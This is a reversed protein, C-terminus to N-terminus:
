TQLPFDAVWFCWIACVLFAGVFGQELSLLLILFASPCCSQFSKSIGVRSWGFAVSCVLSEVWVGGATTLLATVLCGLVGVLTIDSFASSPLLTTM